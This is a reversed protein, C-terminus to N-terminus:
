PQPDDGPRFARHHRTQFDAADQPSWRNAQWPITASTRRFQDYLNLALNKGRAATFEWAVDLPRCANFARVKSDQSLFDRTVIFGLQSGIILGSNLARFYPVGMASDGVFFWSRGNKEVAFREAAYLSLILKTVKGSGEMYNEGAIRQRVNMYTRIDGSFPPPIAPDGLHLPEKFSAKPLAAYTKEDIFFRLTVPTAGDKEKGIYEFAMHSLLKNTKYSEDLFDLHGAPGHTQYKVEAVYQLPYHKVAETGLLANRMKSHAGDAAIFTRCDPHAQMLLEPDEVASYITEIGLGHAFRKLAGELDNTRVFVAGAASQFLQILNKGTMDHYFAKEHPNHSNKGYLLMSLHELRLVHSRQYTTYREYLKVDMHPNRKKIQIATWLGVPGAGVIVVDACM